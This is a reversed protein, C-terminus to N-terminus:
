VDSAAEQRSEADRRLNAAVARAIHRIMRQRLRSRVAVVLREQDSPALESPFEGGREAILDAWRQIQDDTLGAYAAPNASMTTTDDSGADPRIRQPFKRSM